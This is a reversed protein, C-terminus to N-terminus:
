TYIENYYKERYENILMNYNYFLKEIYYNDQRHYYNIIIKIEFILYDIDILSEIPISIITSTKKYEKYWNNINKKITKLSEVDDYLKNIIITNLCDLIQIYLLEERTM